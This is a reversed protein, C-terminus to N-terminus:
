SPSFLILFKKKQTFFKNEFDINCSFFFHDVGIQVFPPKNSLAFFELFFANLKELFHKKRNIKAGKQDFFRIEPKQITIKKKILEFKTGISLAVFEACLVLKKKM